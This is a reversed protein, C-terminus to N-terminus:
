KEARELMSHLNRIIDSDELDVKKTVTLVSIKGTAPRFEILKKERFVDICIRLLCYNLKGGGIDGFMTDFDTNKKQQIYRYVTVFDGREPIIKRLFPATLTGGRMMKEYCDKAAFYPAQKVGSKRFDKVKISLSETERFLNIELTVLMDIKDGKTFCLKDPSFGFILAKEQINGYTFEIKSHKGESLPIINDVRAGLIAFVPQPNEAGYPELACLGKVKELTIDGPYLLKDATQVNLPIEADDDTYEYVLNKFKEINEEKISFGGAGKHGGFKELVESCYKLCEYMNLNGASRASGRANGDEEITIIIVPKSYLEVLRSAVIGIVGHHWNKGSLVLVRHNLPSDDANISDRISVLIENEAQKRQNNLTCVTEAFSDADQEDECTIMKVATLPSGFRGSANIYPAIRFAIDTSTIKKRDLKTKEMLSDLGPIETNSLYELGKKVITRNEGTLPVVDAVTGIATIDGYQQLVADYSGGDLAACLKFAVGVGALNKCKCTDDKRHPNVVAEAEPIEDGPQHHDTIVLNMGFKKVEKAEEIASIGNDVTVILKVDQAAIKHVAEINMGYGEEREPIYYCVDAGMSELYTFLISTATVGDCDYDGYICIRDYNEIAKNIIEAAKDMDKIEFPDSLEASQFFDVLKDFDTYGRSTMVDLVLTNLDCKTAFEATKAEDPKNIRWKKM